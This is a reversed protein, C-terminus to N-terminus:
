CDPINNKREKFYEEADPFIKYVIKKLFPRIQPYFIIFNLIFFIIIIPYVPLKFVIMLWIMIVLDLIKDIFDKLTM